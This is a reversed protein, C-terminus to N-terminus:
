YLPLALVELQSTYGGVYARTTAYTRNFVEQSVGTQLLQWANPDNCTSGFYKTCSAAQSMPVNDIKATAAKLINQFQNFSIEIQFRKTGTWPATQTPEFWSTYFPVTTGFGDSYYESVGAAPIGGTVAVNGGQAPDAFVFPQSIGELGLGTFASYFLMELQCRKGESLCAQNLLNMKMQQRVQQNGPDTAVLKEVHQYTFFALRLLDWNTQGPSSFPRMTQSPDWYALRWDGYTDQIFANSGWRDGTSPYPQWFSGSSDTPKPGTHTYLAFGGTDGTTNLHTHTFGIWGNQVCPPASSMPSWTLSADSVALGTDGVLDMWTVYPAATGDQMFQPCGAGPDPAGWFLFHMGPADGGSPEWKPTNFIYPTQGAYKFAGNSITQSFAASAFLAAAAGVILQRIM